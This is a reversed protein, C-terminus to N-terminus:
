QPARHGLFFRMIMKIGYYGLLVLLGEFVDAIPWVASSFAYLMGVGSSLQADIDVGLIHPLADVKPLWSFAATLVSTFFLIFYYWIM